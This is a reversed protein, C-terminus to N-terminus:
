HVRKQKEDAWLIKKMKKEIMEHESTGGRNQTTATTEVINGGLTDVETKWRWCRKKM